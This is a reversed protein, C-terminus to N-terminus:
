YIDLASGVNGGENLTSPGAGPEIRSLDRDSSLALVTVFYFAEDTHKGLPHRVMYREFAEITGDARASIWDVEDPDGEARVTVNAGSALLSALIVSLHKYFSNM